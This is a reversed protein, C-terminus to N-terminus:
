GGALGGVPGALSGIAAGTLALEKVAEAKDSLGM